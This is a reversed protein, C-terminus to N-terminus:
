GERQKCESKKEMWEGRGLVSRYVIKGSMGEKSEANYVTSRCEDFRREM